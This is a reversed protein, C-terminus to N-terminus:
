SRLHFFSCPSYCSMRHVHDADFSANLSTTTSPICSRLATRVKISSHSKSRSLKRCRSFDTLKFTADTLYTNLEESTLAGAHMFIQENIVRPDVLIHMPTLNGHLVGNSHCHSLGCLAQFLICIANYRSIPLRYLLLDGLSMRAYPLLSYVRDVTFRTGLVANV